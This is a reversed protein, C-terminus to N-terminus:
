VQRTGDGLVDLRIEESAKGDDVVQGRGQGPAVDTFVIVSITANESPSPQSFVGFGTDVGQWLRRLDRDYLERISIIFRPMMPFVIMYCFATLFRLSINTGDLQSKLIRYATLLV